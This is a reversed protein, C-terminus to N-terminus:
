ELCLILEGTPVMNEDYQIEYSILNPYQVHLIGEIEKWVDIQKAEIISIRQQILSKMNDSCPSDLDEAFLYGKKLIKLNSIDLKLIFDDTIKYIVTSKM